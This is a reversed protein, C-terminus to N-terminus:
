QQKNQTFITWHKNNYTKHEVTFGLEIIELETTKSLPYAETYFEIVLREKSNDDTLWRTITAYLNTKLSYPPVSNDNLCKTIKLFLELNSM